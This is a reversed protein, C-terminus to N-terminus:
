RAVAPRTIDQLGALALIALPVILRFFRFKNM